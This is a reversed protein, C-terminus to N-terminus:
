AAAGDRHERDHERDLLVMTEELTPPVSTVTAPIGALADQVVAAPTGAVRIDRGTLMIPLGSSDLVDFARQWDESRVLVASTGRTLDAVRGSGVLRGNALLVLRTCQEAEQLYHTTVIVARGAEAQAHIVDWLRARGLPDVGSTPEDLVLLEPAHSLALAFALQRQRGLGIDSVLSSRV